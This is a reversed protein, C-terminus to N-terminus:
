QLYKALNQDICHGAIATLLTESSFMLGGCAKLWLPLAKAGATVGALAHRYLIKTGENGFFQHEKVANYLDVEEEYTGTLLQGDIGMLYGTYRWILHYSEKEQSTILVGMRELSQLIGVSFLMLTGVM